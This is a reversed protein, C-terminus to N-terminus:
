SGLKRILDQRFSDSVPIRTENIVLHNGELFEIADLAVIYSRHVQIFYHEPLQNFLNKLTEKVLLMKARTSFVKVYDGFGQIYLLERLPVRFLKKDSKLLLTRDLDGAPRKEEFNLLYRVKSIAKQFRELSFPKVLYDVAELEFGEAAYEPYATVFILMPPKDLERALEIGSKGPMNIDLLLLDVPQKKIMELADHANSCTRILQLHETRAIFNELVRQAPPEDDVILARLMM